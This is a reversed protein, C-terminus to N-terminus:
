VQIDQDMRGAVGFADTQLAQHEEQPALGAGLSYTGGDASKANATELKAALRPSSPPVRLSPSAMPLRAIAAVGHVAASSAAGTEERSVPLQAAEFVEAREAQVGSGEGRQLQRQRQPALGLAGIKSRLAQLQGAVEAAEGEKGLAQLGWPRGRFGKVDGSVGGGSELRTSDEGRSADEEGEGEIDTPDQRVQADDLTGSGQKRGEGEEGEAGPRAGGQQGGKGGGGHGEDQGEADEFDVNLNRIFWETAARMVVRCRFVAPPRWFLALAFCLLALSATPLSSAFCPWSATQCGGFCSGFVCLEWICM